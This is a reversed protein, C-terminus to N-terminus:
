RCKTTINTEICRKIKYNGCRIHSGFFGVDFAHLLIDYSKTDRRNKEKKKTLHYVEITCAFNEGGWFIIRLSSVCLLLDKVLSVHNGQLRKTNFLCFTM